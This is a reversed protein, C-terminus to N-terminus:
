RPGRPLANVGWLEWTGARTGRLLLSDDASLTLTETATKLPLTRRVKRRVWDIEVVSCAGKVGNLAAWLSMRPGDFVLCRAGDSFAQQALHGRSVFPGVTEVKEGEPNIRVVTGSSLGLLIIGPGELALSIPVGATFQTRARVQGSELDVILLASGRPSFSDRDGAGVGVALFGPGFLLSHPDEPLPLSHVEEGSPFKVIQLRRGEGSSALALADGAASLAVRRVADSGLVFSPPKGAPSPGWVFVRVPDSQWWLAGQPTALSGSRGPGPLTWSATEGQWCVVRGSRQTATLIHGEPAFSAVVQEQRNGLSGQQLPRELLRALRREAKSRERGEPNARLWARIGTYSTLPDSIAAVEDWTPPSSNAGTPLAGGGGPKPSPRASPSARPSPPPGGSLAVYLGAGLLGVLALAGTLALAWPQIGPPEEALGGFYADLDDAFESATAYRESPDKALARSAIAVLAEPANRAPDVPPMPAGIIQARLTMISDGSYPPLGALVEYLMAGLAWVDTPYGVLHRKAALSEPAMYIPTGLISGTATLQDLGELAGLGFDSVRGRGSADVLVNDPKVDRHVVGAAHAHGLGRGADRLIRLTQDQTGGERLIDGLTRGGEVLEYVLCPRAERIGSTHIRVINPHDLKAALFGERQFRLVSGARLVKLAVDRGSAPDFARYVAGMAGRGLQEKVELTALDM